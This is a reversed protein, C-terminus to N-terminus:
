DEVYSESSPLRTVRRPHRPFWSQTTGEGQVCLTVQVNNEAQPMIEELKVPLIEVWREDRIISVMQEIFAYPAGGDAWLIASGRYM